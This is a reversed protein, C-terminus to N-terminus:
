ARVVRSLVWGALGAAAGVGAGLVPAGIFFMDASLWGYNSVLMAVVPGACAGFLAYRWLWGPLSRSRFVTWERHQNGGEARVHAQVQEWAGRWAEERSVGEAHLTIGIYTGSVCWGDGTSMESVQWGARQLDAFLEEVRPHDSM